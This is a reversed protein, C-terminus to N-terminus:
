FKMMMKIPLISHVFFDSEIIGKVPSPKRKSYTLVTFVIYNLNKSTAPEKKLKKKLVYLHIEKM